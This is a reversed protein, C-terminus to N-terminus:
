GHSEGEQDDPLESIYQEKCANWGRRFDPTHKENYFAEDKGAEIGIDYGSNFATNWAAARGQHYAVQYQVYGFCFGALIVCIILRLKARRFQKNM